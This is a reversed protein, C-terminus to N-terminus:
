MKNYLILLITMHNKDQWQYVDFCLIGDIQSEEIKLLSQRKNKITDFIEINYKKNYILYKKSQIINKRIQFHCIHTRGVKLYYKFQYM